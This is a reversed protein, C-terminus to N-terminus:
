EVPLFRRGSPTLRCRGVNVSRSTALLWVDHKQRRGAFAEAAQQRLGAALSSFVLGQVSQRQTAYPQHQLCPLVVRNIQDYKLVDRTDCRAATMEEVLDHGQQAVVTIGDGLRGM